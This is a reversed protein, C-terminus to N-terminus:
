ECVGVPLGAIASRDVCKRGGPCAGTREGRPDCLDKCTSTGHDCVSGPACAFLADCPQGGSGAGAFWCSTAGNGVFVCAAGNECAQAFLDCRLAYKETEQRVVERRLRGLADGIEPEETRPGVLAEVEELCHLLALGSEDQRGNM